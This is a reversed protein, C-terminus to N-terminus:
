FAIPELYDRNLEVGFGPAAGLTVHGRVPLPEGLISDFVPRVSIGDGVSLFEAFPSNLNSQVFHYNYVSAGHPIVPIDHPKAMAAIRRVATLGGCWQMEPQIVDCARAALIAAFAKYDFELNGIAVQIPSIRGRLEANLHEASGNQLPDEFWKVDYEKVREAMRSAFEMDWSLYCDVMLEMEKGLSLRCQDICKRMKEMGAHGDATGWPAAIKVGLFGSDKWHSVLDPHTTVYCPITEKTKGGILRYVPQNLARGMLDWLALDVGSIAMATIGGLGYPMSSRYMQDWIMEINLPDQGILFRSFHQAILSCSAFGGGYNVACGTVGEDTLIEIAYPDQGPGMWLTRTAAYAPYVSMPNAVLSHTAWGGGWYQSEGFRAGKEGANGARIRYLKIGTIKMGPNKERLSGPRTLLVYLGKDKVHLQMSGM